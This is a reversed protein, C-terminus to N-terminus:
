RRRKRRGSGSNRSTLPAGPGSGRNKESVRRAAAEVYEASDTQFISEFFFFNSFNISLSINAGRSKDGDSLESMRRLRDKVRDTMRLAGNSPFFFGRSCSSRYIALLVFKSQRDRMRGKTDLNNRTKGASLPVFTRHTARM